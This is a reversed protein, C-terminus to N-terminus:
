VRATLLTGGNAGLVERGERCLRWAGVDRQPVSLGASLYPLCLRCPLCPLCPLCSLVACCLLVLCSFGRPSLGALVLLCARARFGICHLAISRVAYSCLLGLVLSGTRRKNRVGGVGDPRQIYTNYVTPLPHRTLQPRMMTGGARESPHLFM